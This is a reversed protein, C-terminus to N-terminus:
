DASAEAAPDQRNAQGSTLAHWRARRIWSADPSRKAGNPLVFLTSSDFGEGMYLNNEVWNNFQGSLSLNKRGSTGGTPPVIILEGEATQEFDWEPNALVLKEFAQASLKLTHLTM